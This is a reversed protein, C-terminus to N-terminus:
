GKVLPGELWEMAKAPFQENCIFEVDENTLRFLTGEKRNSYQVKLFKHYFKLTDYTELSHIIQVTDGEQFKINEIKQQLLLSTTYTFKYLGNSYRLLLIFGPKPLERIRKAEEREKRKEEDREREVRQKRALENNYHDISEQNISEAFAKIEDALKLMDEKNWLKPTSGWYVGEFSQVGIGNEHPLLEVMGMHHEEVIGVLAKSEAIRDSISKERELIQNLNQYLSHLNISEGNFSIKGKEYLSKLTEIIETKSKGTMEELEEFDPKGKYNSHMCYANLVLFEDVSLGYKVYTRTLLQALERNDVVLKGVKRFKIHM